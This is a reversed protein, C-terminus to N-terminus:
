CSNLIEWQSFRHTPIVIQFRQKERVPLTMLNTLFEKPTLILSLFLTRLNIVNGKPDSSGFIKWKRDMHHPIGSLVQFYFKLFNKKDKKLFEIM